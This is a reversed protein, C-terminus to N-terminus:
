KKLNAADQHWPSKNAKPTRWDEGYRIRLYEEHPNLMPYWRGAFEVEVLQDALSAPKSLRGCDTNAVLKGGEIRFVYADFIVGRYTYCRQYGMRRYSQFGAGVFAKDIAMLVDSTGDDRVGVDLDSDHPILANDRFVGLATGSSLWWCLGLGDLLDAGRALVEPAHPQDRLAPM